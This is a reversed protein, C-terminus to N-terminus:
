VGREWVYRIETLGEDNGAGFSEPTFGAAAYFRRATHNAAHAYLSLRDSRAQAKAMLARGIGQGQADPRLYIAQVEAGDHAIFGLLRGRRAAVTVRRRWILRALIAREEQATRVAPLWDSAATNAALIRALSVAEWLRAKRYRVKGASM